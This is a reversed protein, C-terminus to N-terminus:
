FLNFIHLIDAKIDNFYEKIFLEVCDLEFQPNNRPKLEFPEKESDCHKTDDTTIQSKNKLNQIRQINKPNRFILIDSPNYERNEIEEYHNEYVDEVEKLKHIVMKDIDEDELILEGNRIKMDLAKLLNIKMNVKHSEKPLIDLAEKYNNTKLSYWFQTKKALYVLNVPIRARLYYTHNRRILRNHGNM